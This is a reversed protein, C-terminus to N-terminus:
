SACISLLAGGLVILNGIAGYLQLEILIAEFDVVLADEGVFKHELPDAIPLHNLAIVLGQGTKIVASVRSVEVLALEGEGEGVVDVAAVQAELIGLLEALRQDISHGVLNINSCDVINRWISV